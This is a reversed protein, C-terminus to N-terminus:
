LSGQHPWVIDTYIDNERNGQKHFQLDGIIEIDLWTPDFYNHM